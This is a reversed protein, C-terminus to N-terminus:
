TRYATCLLRFSGRGGGWVAASLSMLVFVSPRSESGVQSIRHMATRMCQLLSSMLVIGHFDPTHATATRPSPLPYLLKDLVGSVHM